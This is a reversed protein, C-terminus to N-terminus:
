IFRWMGNCYTEFRFWSMLLEPSVRCLPWKRVSTGNIVQKANCSELTVACKERCLLSVDGYMELTGIATLPVIGDAQMVRYANDFGQANLEKATFGSM